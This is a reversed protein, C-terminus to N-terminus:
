PWIQLNVQITLLLFHATAKCISSSRTHTPQPLHLLTDKRQRAWDDSSSHRHPQGSPITKCVLNSRVYTPRSGRHQHSCRGVKRGYLLMRLTNGVASHRGAVMELNCIPFLWTDQLLYASSRAMRSSNPFSIRGMNTPLLLCWGSSFRIVSGLQRMLRSPKEDEEHLELEDERNLHFKNEFHYCNTEGGQAGGQIMLSQVQVVTVLISFLNETSYSNKM